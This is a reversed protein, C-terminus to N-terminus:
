KLFLAFIQNGAFFAILIGGVLMYSVLMVAGLARWASFRHVEALCKVFVFLSWLTLAGCIIGFFPITGFLRIPPERYLLMIHVWNSKQPPPFPAWFSIPFCILSLVIIPVESWAFAARVEIATALGGLLAGIWRFIAGSLYLLPVALLVWVILAALSVTLSEHLAMSSVAKNATTSAISHWDNFGNALVCIVPATLVLAVVRDSPERDVIARMTARPRICIGLYPSDAWSRREMLRIKRKSVLNDFIATQLTTRSARAMSM